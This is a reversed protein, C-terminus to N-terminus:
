LFHAPYRERFTEPLEVRVGQVEKDYYLAFHHKDGTILIDAKAAIASALIPRDKVPLEILSDILESEAEPVLHSLYVLRWLHARAEPTTLNRSVEGLSYQSTLIEM